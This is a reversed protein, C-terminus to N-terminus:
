RGGIEILVFGVIGLTVIAYAVQIKWDGSTVVIHALWGILFIVFAVFPIVLITGLIKM